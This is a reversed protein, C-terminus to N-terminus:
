FRYEGSVSAVDADIEVFEFDAQYRTYNLGLGFHRNFDYGLTVGYYPKTSTDDDEVDFFDDRVQEVVYAIGARGGIFFGNGDAGFNQKAVV